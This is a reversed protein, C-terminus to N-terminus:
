LRAAVPRPCEIRIPGFVSLQDAPSVNPLDPSQVRLHKGTFVNGCEHPAALPHTLSALIRPECIRAIAWLRV